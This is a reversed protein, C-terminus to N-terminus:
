LVVEKKAERLTAATALVKNDRIVGWLPRESNLGTDANSWALRQVTIGTEQGDVEVRYVGPAEKEYRTSM